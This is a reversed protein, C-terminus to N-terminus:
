VMECMDRKYWVCTTHTPSPTTSHRKKAPKVQTAFGCYIILVDNRVGGGGGGGGGERERERWVGSLNPIVGSRAAM